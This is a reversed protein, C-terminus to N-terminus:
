FFSLREGAAREAVDAWRWPAVGLASGGGSGGGETELSCLTLEM